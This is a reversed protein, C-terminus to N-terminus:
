RWSINREIESMIDEFKGELKISAGSDLSMWVDDYNRRVAEIKEVPVAIEGDTIKFRM